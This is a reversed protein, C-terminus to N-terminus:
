IRENILDKTAKFVKFLMKDRKKCVEAVSRGSYDFFGKGTKVGLEGKDVHDFLAKPRKSPEPPKYSANIINNASIDLGTFDFRQVLGLVMGRPMLSAKVALDLQEPTCIGNDLLYFVETNLLIQIRNIIYGPVFKEMRVPTKGCKQLLAITVAMTEETTKEGRAVEVLPLIQPPAYWHATTFTPLRREPVYLFPNLSSANSVIIADMPLLSDLEEFLAKKVDPKEAVTEQAFQVGAVAEPLSNFFKVRGIVEKAQEATLLEEEVFTDVNTKLMIKAKELTDASRTYLNVEYGGMAYNQAIGPGMTGAGLVAIKKIDALKM